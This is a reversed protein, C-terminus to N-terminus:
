YAEAAMLTFIQVMTPFNGDLEELQYSDGPKLMAFNGDPLKPQSSDLEISNGTGVVLPNALKLQVKMRDLFQLQDV